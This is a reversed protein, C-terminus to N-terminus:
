GSLGRTVHNKIIYFTFDSHAFIKLIDKFNYSWGEYIWFLLVEFTRLGEMGSYFDM